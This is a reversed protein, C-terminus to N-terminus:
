FKWEVEGEDDDTVKETKEGKSGSGFGESDPTECTTEDGYTAPKL